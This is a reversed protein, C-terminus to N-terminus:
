IFDSYDGLFQKVDKKRLIYGDKNPKFGLTKLYEIASRLDDIEVDYRDLKM